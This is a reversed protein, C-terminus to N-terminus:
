KKIFKKYSINDNEYIVFFYIGKSLNRIVMQNDNKSLIKRILIKGQMSFVEITIENDFPMFVNLIDDSPNPYLIYNDNSNTKNLDTNLWM